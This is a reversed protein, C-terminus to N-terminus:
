CVLQKFFEKVVLQPTECATELLGLVLIVPDDIKSDM